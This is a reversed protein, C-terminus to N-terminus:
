QSIGGAEEFIVLLCLQGCVVSGTNGPMEDIRVLFHIKHCQVHSLYNNVQGLKKALLVKIHSIISRANNAPM